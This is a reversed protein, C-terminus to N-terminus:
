NGLDHQKGTRYVTGRFEAVLDNDQNTVKVKYVGITRGNQLEKTEATLVDGVSIKKTFNINNELALSISGRSNSAFALASDAFSFTIGGHCVGFGNTMEERIEMSLKCYGPDSELVEIGMWQSFPDNSLMHNIVPNIEKSM